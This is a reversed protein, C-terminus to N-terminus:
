TSKNKLGATMALMKLRKELKKLYGFKHHRTNSHYRAYWKSDKKEYRKKIISLIEAMKDLAYEQDIKLREKDIPERKMRILESNWIEPNIQAVSLDGTSSVKHSYFNSETDIIAVMIQPEVKHKELARSMQGAIKERKPADLEPQVVAIMTEIISPKNPFVKKDFGKLLPDEKEVIKIPRKSSSSLSSCSQLAFIIIFFTLLQFIKKM